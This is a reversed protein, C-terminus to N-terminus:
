CNQCPKIYFEVDNYVPYWFFGEFRKSYTLDRSKHTAMAKSNTSQCCVIFGSVGSCLVVSCWPIVFGYLVFFLQITKLLFKFRVNICKVSEVLYHFIKWQQYLNINLKYYNRIDLWPTFIAESIKMRFVAPLLIQCLLCPCGLVNKM